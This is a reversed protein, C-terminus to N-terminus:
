FDLRFDKFAAKTVFEDKVWDKTELLEKKTARKDKLEEVERELENIARLKLMIESVRDDYVRFYGDMRKVQKDLMEATEASNKEAKGIQKILTYIKGDFDGIKSAEQHLELM